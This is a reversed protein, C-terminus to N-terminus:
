FYYKQTKVIEYDEILIQPTINGGWENKECKGVVNIVTCGSSSILTEYEEQSSKFKICTIGSPLTIKLTPNKDASLLTINNSSISIDEFAIKPEEVGQGWLQKLNAISLIDDPECDRMGFIFDVKYCPSFDFDQLKINSWRIFDNFMADSMGFGFAQAHGQAYSGSNLFYPYSSCFERFDSLKSKNCGRASGEWWIEGNHSTQNLLLVPRQYKDMLVNAILGTLNKDVSLNAPIKIALIKNDLLNNEEILM